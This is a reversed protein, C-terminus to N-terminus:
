RFVKRSPFHLTRREFIHVGVASVRHRVKLSGFGNGALNAVPPRYSFSDCQSFDGIPLFCHLLRVWLHFESNFRLSLFASFANRVSLTAFISRASLCSLFQHLVTSLLARKLRLFAARRNPVAFCLLTVSTCFSSCREIKLRESSPVNCYSSNMILCPKQMMRENYQFFREQQQLYWDCSWLNSLRIFENSDGVSGLLSSVSRRNRLSWIRASACM